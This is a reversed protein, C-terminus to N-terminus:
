QQSFDEVILVLIDGLTEDLNDAVEDARNIFRSLRMPTKRNYTVIDDDSNASIKEWDDEDMSIWITKGEITKCKCVTDSAFTYNNLYVNYVAEISIVDAYVNTCKQDMEETGMNRLQDNYIKNQSSTIVLITIGIVALVAIIPYVIKKIKEQKQYKLAYQQRRQEAEEEKRKRELEEKERREKEEAEYKLVRLYTSVSVGM